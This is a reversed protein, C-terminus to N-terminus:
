LVINDIICNLTDGARRMLFSLYRVVCLSQWSGLTDVSLAPRTGAHPQSGKWIVWDRPCTQTDLMPSYLFSCPLLSYVHSWPSLVFWPGPQPFWLCNWLSSSTECLCSPHKCGIFEPHFQSLCLVDKRAKLNLDKFKQSPWQSHCHLNSGGMPAWGLPCHSGLGLRLELKWIKHGPTPSRGLPPSM